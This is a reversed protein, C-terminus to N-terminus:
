EFADNGREASAIVLRDNLPPHTLFASLLRLNALSALLFGLERDIM